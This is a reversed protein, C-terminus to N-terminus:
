INSKKANIVMEKPLSYLLSRKIKGEFGTMEKLRIKLEESEISSLRPDLMIQSILKNPNIDYSYLENKSNEEGLNYYLLRIESEHEFALRKVLLSKFLSGVEVGDDDFIHNAYDLLKKENLYLVRGLYCKVDPLDSQSMYLSELLQRITTRIRIGNKNPSYIRWMADSARHLTWCQGYFHEHFNYEVIEGSTLRVKSRLIFNEYPDNWKRPKVLTNKRTSFLELLREVSIIRYIRRDLDKNRLNLFM